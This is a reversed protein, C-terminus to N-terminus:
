ILSTKCTRKIFNNSFHMIWTIAKECSGPVFKWCVNFLHNTYSTHTYVWNSLRTQSKTVGHAIYGVLSRQGHFSNELCLFAPTPLWKGVGPSRRLGSISGVDRTDGASAPLNKLASGGLFGMHIICWLLYKYCSSHASTHLHYQTMHAILFITPWNALLTLDILRLNHIVPM